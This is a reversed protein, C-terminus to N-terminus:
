HATVVATFAEVGDTDDSAGYRGCLLSSACSTPCSTSNKTRAPDSYPTTM